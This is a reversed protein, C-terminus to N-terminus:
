KRKAARERKKLNQEKFQKKGDEDLAILQIDADLGLVFLVSAYAGVSVTPAGKEIAYLTNESIGAQQALLKVSINRRLRAKRIQNGMKELNKVIGSNLILNRKPM